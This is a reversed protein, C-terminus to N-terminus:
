DGEKNAIEKRKRGEESEKINREKGNWNIRNRNRERIMEEAKRGM